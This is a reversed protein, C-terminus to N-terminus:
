AVSTEETFSVCLLQFLMARRMDIVMPAEHRIQGLLM